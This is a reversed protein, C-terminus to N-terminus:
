RKRENNNDKEAIIRAIERAADIRAASFSPFDNLDIIYIEGKATIICDGGFIDLGVAKAAALTTRRLEEKDFPYHRAVGNVKEWGFKTKEPNPYCHTFFGEGVGYFKVVDGEIHKCYIATGNIAAIAMKAEEENTVFAVDEKRLSWGEGKKIWGPYEAPAPLSNGTLVWFQPQPINNKQLLEMFATRSCNKVSEATNIVRCGSSQATSLQQLMTHSRSMHCIADYGNFDEEKHLRTVSHGMAILEQEICELIAADQEVMHPSNAEDRAITAIKM